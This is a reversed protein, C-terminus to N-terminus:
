IVIKALQFTDSQSLKISESIRERFIEARLSMRDLPMYILISFIMNGNERSLSFVTLTSAIMERKEVMPPYYRLHYSVMLRMMWEGVSSYLPSVSSLMEVRKTVVRQQPLQRAEASTHKTV